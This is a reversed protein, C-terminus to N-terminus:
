ENRASQATDMAETEVPWPMWAQRADPHHNVADAIVTHGLGLQVDALRNAVACAALGTPGSMVILTM